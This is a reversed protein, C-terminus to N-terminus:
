AGELCLRLSMLSRRIWSKMTGLPVGALRALADYTLGEFFATRVAAAHKPDLGEICSNLRAADANAVAQAAADPAPDALGLAEDIDTMLRGGGSRLRDIARNRAISVLWTIPSAKAPDFSEARRWVTLYVDQLVDEADQRDNLIRIVVGFLKASTRQYVERLATRDGEAVKRRAQILRARELDEVM